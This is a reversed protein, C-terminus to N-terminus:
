KRPSRLKQWLFWIWYFLMMGVSVRTMITAIKLKANDDRTGVILLLTVGLNLIHIAGTVIILGGWTAYFPAHRATHGKAPPM